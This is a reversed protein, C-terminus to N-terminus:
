IFDFFILLLSSIEFFTRSTKGVQTDIYYHSTVFKFFTIQFKDFLSQVPNELNFSQCSLLFLRLLIKLILPM